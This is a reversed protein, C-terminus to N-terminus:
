LTGFNLGSRTQFKGETLQPADCIAPLVWVPACRVACRSNSAYKGCQPIHMCRCSTNLRARIVEILSHTLIVIWAKVNREM